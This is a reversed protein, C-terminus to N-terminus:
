HRRPWYFTNREGRKKRPLRHGYPGVTQEFVDGSEIIEFEFAGRYDRPGYCQRVWSDPKIKLLARTVGRYCAVAYEISSREVTWPALRWWGAASEGIEQYHQKREESSLWESRYGHGYRTWGGPMEEGDPTDKWWNLTITLLPLNTTLLPAAMEAVLDDLLMIGHGRSSERRANTLQSQLGEPVRSQEPSKPLVPMSQLVDICAAEVSTYEAETKMGHRVIWIQPEFGEHRISRIHSKKSQDEIPEFNEDEGLMAERGHSAFRERRGKGVYFPIGTRPDVLMYVYLGLEDAVQRQVEASMSDVQDTM